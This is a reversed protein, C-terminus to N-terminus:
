NVDPSTFELTLPFTEINFFGLWSFKQLNNIARGSAQRELMIEENVGSSYCFFSLHSIAGEQTSLM